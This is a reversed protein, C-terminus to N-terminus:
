PFLVTAPSYRLGLAPNEWSQQLEGALHEWCHIQCTHHGIVNKTGKSYFSPSVALESSCPTQPSRFINELAMTM